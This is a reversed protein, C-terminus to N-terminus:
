LHLSLAACLQVGCFLRLRYGQGNQVHVIYYASLVTTPQTTHQQLDKQKTTQSKGTAGCTRTCLTTCPPAEPLVEGRLAAALL